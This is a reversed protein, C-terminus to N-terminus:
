RPLSRRCAALTCSSAGTCGHWTSSEGVLMLRTRSWQAAAFEHSAGSLTQLEAIRVAQREIVTAWWVVLALQLALWVGAALAVLATRRM